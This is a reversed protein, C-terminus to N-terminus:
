RCHVPNAQAQGTAHQRREEADDMGNSMIARDLINEAANVDANARYGCNRCHFVAQSERNEGDCHGCAHCTQSTYAAPVEILRTGALKTKYALADRIASWKNSLIRRNLGAKARAGNPLYRQPDTPDTRPRVRRTMHAVDLHEIAIVDYDRVLQTTVKATWDTRRNTEHERIRRMRELTRQRNKSAFKAHKGGRRENTRDQRSLQRQLRKYEDRQKASPQPMDLFTGNSLALTHVCGRDVGISKGTATRDIPLPDNTFVLTRATWNVAISTYARIPQSVRVHITLKWRSTTDNPRRYRKPVSGTITVVGSRRGTRRYLANGTKSQNRWCVFYQPCRHRARFRPLKGGSTKKRKLASFWGINEVRACSALIPSPICALWHCADRAESDKLPADVDPGGLPVDVWMREHTRVDEVLRRTPRQARHQNYRSRWGDCLWDMIREANRTWVHNHCLDDGLYVSCGAHKVNVIRVKQSM